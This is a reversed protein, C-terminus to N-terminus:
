IVREFSLRGGVPSVFTPWKSDGPLHNDMTGEAQDERRWDERGSPDHRGSWYIQKAVRGARNSDVFDSFKWCVHVGWFHLNPLHTKGKWFATIKENWTLRKPPSTNTCTMNRITLVQCTCLLKIYKVDFLCKEQCGKPFVRSLKNFM